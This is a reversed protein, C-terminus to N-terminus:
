SRLRRVRVRGPTATLLAGHMLDSEYVRLLVLSINGQERAGFGVLRVIGSHPQDQVVSLEGFDKDLTIVVRGQSHAWRLIEADGPDKVWDGAWEADHGAAALVGLAGRWVCADLLVKM